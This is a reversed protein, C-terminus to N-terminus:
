NPKECTRYNTLGPASPWCDRCEIKLGTGIPYAPCKICVDDVFLCGNLIAEKAMRESSNYFVWTAVYLLSTVKTVSDM